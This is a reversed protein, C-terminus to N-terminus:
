MLEQSSIKVTPKAQEVPLLYDAIKKCQAYSFNLAIKQYINKSTWFTNTADHTTCQWYNGSLDVPAAFCSISTGWLILFCYTIYRNM